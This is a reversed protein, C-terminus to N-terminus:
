GGLVAAKVNANPPPTPRLPYVLPKGTIKQVYDETEKPLQAGSDLARQLRTPGANYAALALAPDKFRQLMQAFYQAGLAINTVPNALMAAVEPSDAPLGLMGAATAPMIQMVGRAGKPSVANPNFSSEVAAVRRFLEPDIGQQTATNTLLTQIQKNTPAPTGTESPAMASPNFMVRPQPQIPTQGAKWTNFGEPSRGLRNVFEKGSQAIEELSTGGLIGMPIKTFPMNAYPHRVATVGSTVPIGGVMNAEFPGTAQRQGGGPVPVTPLQPNLTYDSPPSTTEFMTRVAAPLPYGGKIPMIPLGRSALPPQPSVAALDPIAIQKPNGIIQMDPGEFGAMPAPAYPKIGGLFPAAAQLVAGTKGGVVAGTSRALTSPQLIARKVFSSATEGAARQGAASGLGGTKAGVAGMIGGTLAGKKGGTLAGGAAGAAAQLAMSAVPGVGPIFAAAIPLATGVVKKWWSTKKPAQTSAGTTSPPVGASVTANAATQPFATAAKAQQVLLDQLLNERSLRDAAVGQAYTAVEKDLSPLGYDGMSGFQFTPDVGALAKRREAISRATAEPSITQRFDPTTFASLINGTPRILSAIDASTPMAPQFNEAVGSLGRARAMQYALEQEAGLPSADLLAQRGAARTMNAQNYFAGLGSRAQQQLQYLQLQRDFEAQRAREQQTFFDNEAARESSKGSAVGGVISTGLQGLNIWDSPKMQDMWGM